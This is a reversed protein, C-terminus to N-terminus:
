MTKAPLFEQPRCPKPWTQKTQPTNKGTKLWFKTHIETKTKSENRKSKLPELQPEATNAM